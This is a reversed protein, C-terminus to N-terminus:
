RDLGHATHLCVAHGERVHEVRCRVGDPRARVSEDSKVIEGGV